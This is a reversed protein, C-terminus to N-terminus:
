IRFVLTKRQYCQETNIWIDRERSREFLNDYECFFFWGFFKHQHKQKPAWKIESFHAGQEIHATSLLTISWSISGTDIHSFSVSIVAFTFWVALMRLPVMKKDNVHNCCVCKNNAHLRQGCKLNSMIWSILLELRKCPNGNKPYLNNGACERILMPLQKPLEVRTWFALSAVPLARLLLLSWSISPLLYEHTM